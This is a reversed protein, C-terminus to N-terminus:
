YKWLDLDELWFSLRTAKRYGGLKKGNNGYDFRLIGSARGVLCRKGLWVRPGRRGEGLCPGGASLIDRLFNVSLGVRPRGEHTM